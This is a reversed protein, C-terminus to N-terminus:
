WSMEGHNSDDAVMGVAMLWCVYQWRVGHRSSDAVMGDAMMGVAIQWWAM